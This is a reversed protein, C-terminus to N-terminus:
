EDGRCAGRSCLMSQSTSRDWTRDVTTDETLMLMLAGMWRPNFLLLSLDLEFV